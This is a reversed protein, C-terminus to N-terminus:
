YGRHSRKSRMAGGGSGGGGGSQRTISLAPTRIIGYKKLESLVPGSNRSGKAFASKIVKTIYDELQKKVADCTGLKVECGTRARTKNEDRSKLPNNSQNIHFNIVVANHVFRKIEGKYTVTDVRTTNPVFFVEINGYDSSSERNVTNNLAVGVRYPKTAPLIYEKFKTQLKASLLDHLEKSPVGCPHPVHYQWGGETLVSPSFYRAIIPILTGADKAAILLGVNIYVLNTSYLYNTSSYVDKSRIQLCFPSLVGPALNIRKNANKHNFLVKGVEIVKTRDIDSDSGYWDLDGNLIDTILPILSFSYYRIAGLVNEIFDKAKSQDAIATPKESSIFDFSIEMKLTHFGFESEQEVSKKAVFVVKLKPNPSASTDFSLKGDGFFNNLFGLKLSKMSVESINATDEAVPHELLNNAASVVCKSLETKIIDVEATLSIAIIHPNYVKDGRTTGMAINKLFELNFISSLQYASMRYRDSVIGTTSLDVWTEASSSSM